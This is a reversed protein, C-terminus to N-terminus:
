LNRYFEDIPKRNAARGIRLKKRPACAGLEVIVEHAVTRDVDRGQRDGLDAVVLTRRGGDTAGTEIRIQGRRVGFLANGPDGKRFLVEGISLLQTDCLESLRQLEDADLDAFMPNTKLIVAFEAQKSM